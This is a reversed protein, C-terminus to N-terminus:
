YKLTVDVLKTNGHVTLDINDHENKNIFHVQWHYGTKKFHHM